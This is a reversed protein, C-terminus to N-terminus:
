DIEPSFEAATETDNVEMDGGEVPFPGGTEKPKFGPFNRSTENAELDRGYTTHGGEV